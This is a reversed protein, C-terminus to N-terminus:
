RAIEKHRMRETDAVQRTVFTPEGAGRERKGGGCM